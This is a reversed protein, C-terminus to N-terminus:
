CVEGWRIWSQAQWQTSGQLRQSLTIRFGRIGPFLGQEENGTAWEKM